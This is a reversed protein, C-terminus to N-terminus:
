RLRSTQIVSVNIFMSIFSYIRTQGCREDCPELSLRSFFFVISCKYRDM